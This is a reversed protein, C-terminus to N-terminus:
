AAKKGLRYDHHLGGLIPKRVVCLHQQLRHQYTHLPRPTAPPLARTSFLSTPAKPFMIGEALAGCCSTTSPSLWREPILPAQCRIWLGCGISNNTFTEIFLRWAQSGLVMTQFLHVIGHM